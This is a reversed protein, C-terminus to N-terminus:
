NVFLQSFISRLIDQAGLYTTNSFNVFSFNHFVLNLLFALFVLNVLYVFSFGFIYNGKLFDKQKGRLSKASFVLHFAFSLGFLFTFFKLLDASSFFISLIGYLIGFIILYIPLLYPAAKVMPKLFTFVTETVKQGKNYIIAPEWIFLYVVLLTSVGQWFCVGIAQDIQGFEKLFARSAAYVFPLLCIGLLFKIIGFTKGSFFNGGRPKFDFDKYDKDFQAFDEKDFFNKRAM